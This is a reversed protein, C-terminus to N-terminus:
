LGLEQLFKYKPLAGILRRIEEGNEGVLVYTPISKVGYKEMLSPNEDVNVRIIEIEPHEGEFEDIIPNMLRCPNCWVAWFDYLKM